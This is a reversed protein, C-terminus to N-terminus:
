SSFELKDDCCVPNKGQSKAVHPGPHDERVIMYAVKM